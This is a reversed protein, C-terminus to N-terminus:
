AFAHRGPWALIGDRAQPIPGPRGLLFGQGLPVGLAVLEELDNLEEVGEAVVTIGMDDAFSALREVLSRRWRDTGVGAVISRDLKLYNPALVVVRGLAAYGAGVDDIAIKTGLERLPRLCAIAREADGLPSAETIELVLRDPREGVATALEGSCITEASLNVSLFVDRPLRDLEAVAREIATLELEALMGVTAAEAFWVDPGRRPTARFRALAELGRVRGTALEVIPQFVMDIASTAITQSIRDEIARRESRSRTRGQAVLLEATSALESVALSAKGEAARHVARLIQDVPEEKGVYGTVGAEIMALITDPEGDASVAVVRTRASGRRIGRTAVAGGGGPMRVDVLAVDPGESRALEVAQRADQATGVVEIGPDTRLLDSMVDLVQTEDDALMVRIRDM